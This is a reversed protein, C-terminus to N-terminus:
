ACSYYKPDLPADHQDVKHIYRGAANAQWIEISTNKVPRGSEDTVRGAVVIREGIPDGNVIGNKTLDHDYKGIVEQGFVPATLNRFGDKIPILPKTPGRFITSKYAPFVYPPHVKKVPSGLINNM